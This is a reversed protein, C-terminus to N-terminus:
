KNFITIFRNVMGFQQALSVNVTGKDKFFIDLFYKFSKLENLFVMYNISKHSIYKYLFKKVDEIQQESIKDGLLYDGQNVFDFLNHLVKKLEANHFYHYQYKTTKEKTNFAFIMFEITIRAKYVLIFEDRDYIENIMEIFHCDFNKKCNIMHWIDEPSLNYFEEKLLKKRDEFAYQEVIYFIFEACLLPSLDIFDFFIKPIKYGKYCYANSDDSSIVAQSVVVSKKNNQSKHNIHRNISFVKTLFILLLYIYKIKM